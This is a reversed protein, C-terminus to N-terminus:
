NRLENSQVQQAWDPSQIQLKLKEVTQDVIIQPGNGALECSRNLALSIRRPKRVYNIKVNSILFSKALETYLFNGSIYSIPEHKKPGYFSNRRVEAVQDAEMLRFPAWDSLKNTLTSDPELAETIDVESFNASSTLDGAASCTVSEVTNDDTYFVFSNSCYIDRDNEWWVQLNKFPAVTNFTYLVDDVIASYDGSEATIVKSQFVDTENGSIKFSIKFDSYGKDEQAIPFPLIAKYYKKTVGALDPNASIWSSLDACLGTTLSSIVKGRGTLIHHYNGPLPSRILYYPEYLEVSLPKGTVTIPRIIDLDKVIDEFSKSILSDLYSNMVMNLHFDIEDPQIDDVKSSDLRQLGQRVAIHLDLATNLLM